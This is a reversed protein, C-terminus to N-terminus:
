MCLLTEEQSHGMRMVFLYKTYGQQMVLLLGLVKLDGCMKWKYKDYDICNLLSHMSGHTEKMHVSYALPVSPYINGHHLLVAGLSAELSDIFLQWEEPNHVHGVAGHIYCFTDPNNLSKRSM